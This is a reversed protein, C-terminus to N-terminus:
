IKKKCFLFHTKYNDKNNDETKEIKAVNLFVDELTPMSASYNKIGLSLMNEDLDKFFEKINFKENNGKNNNNNNDKNFTDDSKANEKLIRFLIEESLAEYEINKSWKKFFNIIKENDAQHEKVVTVTIFKGFRDILFLPNGICKMEGNSIIGIRKGLVSAEEM